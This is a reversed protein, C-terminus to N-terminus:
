IIGKFSYAGRIRYNWKSDLRHMVVKGFDSSAHLIQNEPMVIAIHQPNNDFAMHYADGPLANSIPIRDMFIDLLQKMKNGDPRRAYARFDDFGVLKDLGRGRALGILVGVCDTSLGRTRKQHGFKTGIWLLADEVIM